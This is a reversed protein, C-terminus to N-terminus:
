WPTCEMNSPLGSRWHSGPSFRSQLITKMPRSRSLATKSSAKVFHRALGAPTGAATYCPSKCLHKALGTANAAATCFSANVLHSALGAATAATKHFIGEAVAQGPAGAFGCCLLPQPEHLLSVCVFTHLLTSHTHTLSRTNHTHTCTNCNRSTVYAHSVRSPHTQHVICMHATNALMCRSGITAQNIHCVAEAHGNSTEQM